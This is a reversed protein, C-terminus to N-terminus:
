PTSRNKLAGHAAVPGRGALTPSGVPPLVSGADAGDALRPPTPPRTPLLPPRHTPPMSTPKLRPRSSEGEIVFDYAANKFRDVASQAVARTAFM